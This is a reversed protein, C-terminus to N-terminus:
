DSAQPGQPRVERRAFPALPIRERKRRDEIVVEPPQQWHAGAPIPGPALAAELLAEIPLLRADYRAPQGPKRLAFLTSFGDSLDAPTLRQRNRPAPRQASIRSGHDGQVIVWSDATEARLALRDLLEAVLRTTCATQELYLPYRLARNQASFHEARDVGPEGYMWSTPDPRLRCDADYAFPFHPLMLHAIVAVGPGLERDIEDRLWEFSRLAVLPSTRGVARDPLLSSIRTLMGGLLRLRARLPLESGPLASPSELRTVSCHELADDAAASCLDLYDTRLVRLAYGRRRLQAFYANRELAVRQRGGSHLSAEGRNFLASFSDRSMFYRSYARGFVQFGRELYADRLALAARGERDFEAPIGEVGIQEDLILHLLPPLAENRPQAPRDIGANAPDGASPLLAAALAFVWAVPGVIPCWVRRSAWAAAAGFSGIAALGLVGPGTGLQLDAFWVALLGVGLSRLAVGAWELLAGLAAAAAVGLLTVTWLEASALPLQHFRLFILVPGLGLACAVGWTAVFHRRSL